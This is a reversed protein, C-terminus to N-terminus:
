RQWDDRLRERADRESAIRNEVENRIEHARVEEKLSKVKADSKAAKRGGFWTALLAAVALAAGALWETPILSIM